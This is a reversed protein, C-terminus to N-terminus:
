PRDERFLVIAEQLIEGPARLNGAGDDVSIWKVYSKATFWTMQRKAYRRTAQKLKEVANEFSEEGRLYPFLEKYGIAQAATANAEFVGDDLLAKTEDVLGEAIM